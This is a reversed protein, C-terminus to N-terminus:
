RVRTNRLIESPSKGFQKKFCKRFYNVDEFGIMLSVEAVQLQPDMQLYELAKRVRVERIFEVTSKKTILTMKRYLTSSSMCMIECLEEVGFKEQDMNNEIHDIIQIVFPPLSDKWNERAGKTGELNQRIRERFSQRVQMINNVKGALIRHNFPKVIYDDAGLDIGAQQHEEAGLATLLIIPIHNTRPDEKLTKCLEFGNKCPMLVDSIILDPMKEIALSVGEEGNTAELIDECDLSERIYTRLDHNDEVILVTFDGFKEKTSIPPVDPSLLEVESARSRDDNQSVPITFQFSSGTGKSELLCLDGGHLVSMEKALALGIGSGKIDRIDNQEIRYFRRFITKRSEDSIGPGNDKVTISITGGSRELIM